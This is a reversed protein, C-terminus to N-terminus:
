TTVGTDVDVIRSFSQSKDHEIIDERFPTIASENAAVASVKIFSESGVFNDIQLGVISITDKTFSGVNDVIVIRDNQNFVELKNTNLKNRIICTKNKYQFANSTIIYNVDDTESINAAYRLTHDQIKTLTPSFRRQMRVTARSSLISPSVDDILTLLNSRRFSQGFKGTNDTFYDSITTNVNDQITNRSLTTLSPNFQFFVETEIFTKVPDIFELSFSAVSLQNSLDIISQKTVDETVSDVDANFLVSMFITGFKPDLADEGGFSKIDKILTSFNRLVLTSYDVATVMRNQTAYQFPATKRISEISEKEGGGVANAVTSVVVSYNGGAVSITSQPEFVKATDSEAGSSALYTVVVKNGADPARGLTTGNGFTLEFFGNPSEKLIFLTSAINITTAKLLNTYTAFASAGPTEYVRVVATDIDMNADPIIYVANEEKRTILFTKVRETGEFVKINENGSADKFIYLGEGNDSATLDELTQFVYETTDVTSNFKFGSPIQITATRGSVGSLNVSMKIIAQSSTKSDPIYGIGESLSVLSSRLQATGLFSENLAFNATLGNYHTNYALVDLINSLGSAEFNFDSFENKEALFTKLNNKIADFDLSTSKITTAM